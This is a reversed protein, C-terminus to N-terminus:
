RARTKEYRKTDEVAKKINLSKQYYPELEAVTLPKFPKTEDPKLGEFAFLMDGPLEQMFMGRMWEVQQKPVNPNAMIVNGLEAKAEYISKFKRNAKKWGNFVVDRVLVADTETQELKKGLEFPAFRSKNFSNSSWFDRHSAQIDSLFSDAILTNPLMVNTNRLDALTKINANEATDRILVNSVIPSKRVVVPQWGERALEAAKYASVYAFSLDVDKFNIDNNDNQKIPVIVVPKGVLKFFENSIPLLRSLQADLDRKVNLLYFGVYMSNTDVLRKCDMSDPNVRNATCYKEALQKREAKYDKLPKVLGTIHSTSGPKSTEQANAGFAVTAAVALGIMTRITKM